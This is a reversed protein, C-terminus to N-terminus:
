VEMYFVSAKGTPAYVSVTNGASIVVADAPALILGDGEALGATAETTIFINSSGNNQFIFDGGSTTTVTTWGTQTIKQVAM